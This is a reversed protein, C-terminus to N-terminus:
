KQQENIGDASSTNLYILILRDTQGSLSRKGKCDPQIKSNMNVKITVEVGRM